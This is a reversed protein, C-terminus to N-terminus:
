KLLQLTGKLTKCRTKSTQDEAERCCAAHKSAFINAGRFEIPSFGLGGRQPLHKVNCPHICCSFDVSREESREVCGLCSRLIAKKVTYIWSLLALNETPNRHFINIKPPEPTGQVGGPRMGAGSTSKQHNKPSMKSANQAGQRGKPRGSPGVRPM